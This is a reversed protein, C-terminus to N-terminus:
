LLYNELVKVPSGQKEKGRPLGESAPSLPTKKPPQSLVMAWTLGPQASDATPAKPFAESSFFFTINLSM